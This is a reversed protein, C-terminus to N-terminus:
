DKQKEYYSVIKYLGRAEKVILGVAMLGHTLSYFTGPKYMRKVYEQGFNRFEEFFLAHSSGNTDGFHCRLKKLITIDIEITEM